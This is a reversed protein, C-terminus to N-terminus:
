RGVVTPLRIRVPRDVRGRSGIRVSESAVQLINLAGNVDANRIMGCKSCVYLGRYKRNKKRRIGCDSCIQSTYAEEVEVFRIGYYECKARLKQKFLGFPICQFHQNTKRGLNLHQKIAKLKGIVLTGLNQRLCEQILWHVVQAMYNSVLNKRKQLLIALNKGFQVRQKAYVAQLRAKQQNWWRNYSKLGKGEIIFAAGKTSVCTAFNNLGLDIGLQQSPDLEPKEPDVVYVYEIEFFRGHFRPLLRVEKINKGQIHPPLKYYLYRMGLEQTFYRGLSLRIMEGEVKFMDKPFICAYHGDKPLYHPMRIPSLRNYAGNQRARLLGFFSRMARHVLRMTQQAVQSPLRQYNENDKLLHYAQEYPLFSGHTFYYQRMTFLTLNYLNKALHTLQHLLRYEPRTLRRLQNKQVLYM